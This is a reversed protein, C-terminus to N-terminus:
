AFLVKSILQSFVIKRVGAIIAIKTPTAIPNIGNVCSNINWFIDNKLGNPDAIVVKPSGTTATLQKIILADRACTSKELFVFILSVFSVSLLGVFISVFTLNVSSTFSVDSQLFFSSLRRDLNKIPLNGEKFNTLSSAFDDFYERNVLSSSM